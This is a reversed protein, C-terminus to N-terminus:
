SMRRLVLRRNEVSSFIRITRSPGSLGVVLAAIDDVSVKRSIVSAAPGFQTALQKTSAWNQTPKARQKGSEARYLTITDGFKAALAKRTATFTAMFQERSVEPNRGAIIDDVATDADFRVSWTGM